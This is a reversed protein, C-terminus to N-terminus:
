PHFKTASPSGLLLLLLLLLLLHFATNAKIDAQGSFTVTYLGSNHATFTGNSIDM